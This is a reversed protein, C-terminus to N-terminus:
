LLDLGSVRQAQRIVGISLDKRPHPITIIKEIGPKSLTVHSGHQRQKTWGDKELAEIVAKSSTTM